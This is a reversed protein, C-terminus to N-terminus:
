SFKRVSLGERRLKFTAGTASAQFQKIDSLIENRERQPQTNEPSSKFTQRFQQPLAISGPTNPLANRARAAQITPYNGLNRRM